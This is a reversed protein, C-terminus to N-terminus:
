EWTINKRQNDYVKRIFTPEPGFNLLLGVEYPTARLEDLLQAEHQKTIRYATKIEVLVLDQVLLDGFFKEEVHDQLNEQIKPQQQVKLGAAKLALVLANEYVKELFGYGLQPYVVKFFIHLIKDTIDRHKLGMQSEM